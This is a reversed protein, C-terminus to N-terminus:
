LSLLQSWYKARADTMIYEGHLKMHIDLPLMDVEPISLTRKVGNRVDRWRESEEDEIASLEEDKSEDHLIRLYLRYEPIDTFLLHLAHAEFYEYFGPHSFHKDIWSLNNVDPLESTFHEAVEAYKRNIPADQMVQMEETHKCILADQIVQIAEAYNTFTFRISAFMMSPRLKADDEFLCLLDRVLDIKQTNTYNLCSIISYVKEMYKSYETCAKDLQRKILQEVLELMMSPKASGILSCLLDYQNENTTKKLEDYEECQSENFGILATKSIHMYNLHKTALTYNSIIYGTPVSICKQRRSNFKSECWDERITNIAEDSITYNDKLAQIFIERELYEVVRKKLTEAEVSTGFDKVENMINNITRLKHTDYKAVLGDFSTAM